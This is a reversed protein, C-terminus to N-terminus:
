PDHSWQALDDFDALVILVELDAVPDNNREGNGTALAAAERDLRWLSQRILLHEKELNAYVHQKEPGISVFKRLKM